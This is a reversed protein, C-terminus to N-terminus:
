QPHSSSAETRFLSGSNDKCSANEAEGGLIRAALVHNEGEKRKKEWYEMDSHGPRLPGTVAKGLIYQRVIPQTGPIGEGQISACLEATLHCNDNGLLLDVTGNNEPIPLSLNALHAFRHKHDNWNVALCDGLVTPVVKAILVGDGKKRGDQSRYTLHIHRSNTM